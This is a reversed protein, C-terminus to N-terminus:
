PGFRPEVSEPEISMDIVHGAGNVGAGNVGAGNGGAGGGATPSPNPPAPPSTPPPPPTRPGPFPYVTQGFPAPPQPPRRAAQMSIMVRPVEFQLGAVVLMAFDLTKQARRIPIHRLANQLAQGYVRADADNLLWHPENRRLAIMAHM